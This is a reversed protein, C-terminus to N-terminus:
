KKDTSGIGGTRNDDSEADQCIYYQTVIGQAFANGRMVSITEDSPNYLKILIHGMNEAECYDADIVATTNSLRVGYKFGMGSRPMIMLVKDKNHIDTVWRIGTPIIISNNPLIKMSYPAFFDMGASHRTGQKPLKLENYWSLIQEEPVDTNNWAEKWIDYSVKEFYM